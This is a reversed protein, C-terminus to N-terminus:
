TGFGGLLPEMEPVTLSAVVTVNQSASEFDCKSATILYDAPTLNGLLYHGTSDTFAWQSGEYDNSEFSSMKVNTSSPRAYVLAGAIPEGTSANSVTGEVAGKPPKIIPVLAFDATVTSNGVVDVYQYSEKYSEKYAIVRTSGESLNDLIYNGNSDTTTSSWYNSNLVKASVHANEIPSGTSADTVTGQIAGKAPEPIPDLAFDATVTDKDLVDIVQSSDQFGFKKALVSTSGISLGTLIYHGTSDTVTSKSTINMGNLHNDLTNAIVYAGQIPEGTSSNTVTGQISGQAPEPIPVM